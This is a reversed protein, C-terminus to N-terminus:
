NLKLYPSQTFAQNVGFEIRSLTSGSTLIGNLGGTWMIQPPTDDNPYNKVDLMHMMVTGTTYSYYSTGWGPYGWGPHGWGPYGWGPYGWGPYYVVGVVKSNWTSAEIYVDPTDGQAVEVWGYNMLNAKMTSLVLNAEEEPYDPKDENTDYIVILSDYLYYTKYDQFNIGDAFRTGVLDLDSVTREKEPYCSIMFTVMVFLAGWKLTKLKM